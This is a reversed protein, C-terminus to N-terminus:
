ELIEKVVVEGLKSNWGTSFYNRRRMDWTDSAHQKEGVNPQM